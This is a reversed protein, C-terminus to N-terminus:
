EARSVEPRGSGDVAVQWRERGEVTLVFPTVEGTPSFIVPPPPPPPERDTERESPPRYVLLTGTPPPDPPLIEDAAAVSLSLGDAVERSERPTWGDTGYTLVVIGDGADLGIPRASVVAEDGLAPLDAAVRRAAREAESAPPPLTGIVVAGILAMVVLVVLLEVLTLGGQVARAGQGPWARRSRDSRVRVTAELAAEPQAVRYM